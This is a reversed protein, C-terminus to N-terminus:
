TKNLFRFASIHAYGTDIARGTIEGSPSNNLRL